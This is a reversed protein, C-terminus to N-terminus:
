VRVGLQERRDFCIIFSSKDRPQLVGVGGYRVVASRIPRPLPASKAGDISRVVADVGQMMVDAGRVHKMVQERLKGAVVGLFRRPVQFRRKRRAAEVAFVPPGKPRGDPFRRGFAMEDGVVVLRLM